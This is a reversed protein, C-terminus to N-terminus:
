KNKFLSELPPVIQKKRSVVGDIWFSDNSSLKVSFAKEFSKKDGLVFFESGQKMIDTVVFIVMDIGLEVNKGMENKIDEIKPKISETDLTEFQSILIKKDGILFEKCDTNFIETANKKSLSSKAILMDNVFKEPNFNNFKVFNNKLYQCMEKDLSTTTPSKLGLTDSNIAAFLLIEWMHITTEITEIGLLHFLNNKYLNALITATSGVPMFLANIPQSTKIGMKHHDIIGIINAEQISPLSQSYDAHDVLFINKKRLDDTLIPICNKLNLCEFIFETEPNLDGLRAATSNKIISSLYVSSVICDTDPNKHGVIIM